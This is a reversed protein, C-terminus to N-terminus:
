SLALTLIHMLDREAGGLGIKDGRLSALGLGLSHERGARRVTLLVDVTGTGSFVERGLGM